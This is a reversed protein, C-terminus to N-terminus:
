LFRFVSRFQEVAAPDGTIASRNARGYHELCFDEASAYTLVTSAASIDGEAIRLRGDEVSIKWTAGYPGPVDLGVNLEMGAVRDPVAMMEIMSPMVTSALVGAADENMPTSLGLGQRIDWAHITYDVLQFLVM